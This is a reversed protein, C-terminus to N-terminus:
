EYALMRSLLSNRDRNRHRLDHTGRSRALRSRLTEAHKGSPSESFSTTFFFLFFNAPVVPSSGSRRIPMHRCRATVTQTMRQQALQVWDPWKHVCTRFKQVCDLLRSLFEAGNSSLTHM